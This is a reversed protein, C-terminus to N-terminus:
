GLVFLTAGTCSMNCRYLSHKVLLSCTTVIFFMCSYWVCHVLVSCAAGTCFMAHCHMVHRTLVFRTKMCFMSHHYFVHSIISCPTAHGFMYANLVPHGLKYCTTYELVPIEHRVVCSMDNRVLVSWTVYGPVFCTINYMYLVHWVASTCFM